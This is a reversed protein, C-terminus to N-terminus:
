AHIHNRSIGPIRQYHCCGKKDVHIKLLELPYGICQHYIQNSEWIDQQKEHLLDQQLMLEKQFAYCNHHIQKQDDIASHREYDYNLNNDL